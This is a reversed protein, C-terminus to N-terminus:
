PFWIFLQSECTRAASVSSDAGQACAAHAWHYTAYSVFTMAHQQMPNLGQQREAAVLDRPSANPEVAPSSAIANASPEDGIMSCNWWNISSAGSAAIAATATHAIM